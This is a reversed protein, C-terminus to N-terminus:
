WRPRLCESRASDARVPCGAAVPPVHRDRRQRRPDAGAVVLGALVAIAVAVNREQSRRGPDPASAEDLARQVRASRAHPRENTAPGDAHQRAHEGPQEHEHSSM